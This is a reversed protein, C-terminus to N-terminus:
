LFVGAAAPTAGAARRAALEQCAAIFAPASASLGVWTEIYRLAIRTCLREALTDPFEVALTAERLLITRYGLRAMAKMGGESDQICMNTAFGAYVLNVIGERRLIRDFQNSTAIVDDEPQPRMIAPADLAQWGEWATYGPGHVKEAREKRYGPIADPPWRRRDLLEPPDERLLRAQPYRDAIRVPHVHCIRIGAARAADTAPRIWERVIQEALAHTEPLGMDVFFQPPVAPGDPFGVNWVHLPVFATRSVPLELGDEVYGPM